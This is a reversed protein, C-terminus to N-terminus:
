ETAVRLRMFRSSHAGPPADDRVTVIWRDAFETVQVVAPHGPGDAFTWVTSWAGSLQHNAEVAYSLDGTFKRVTFTLTPVVTGQPGPLKGPAPAIALDPSGPDGLLAYELLNNLSDGDPDDTPADQGGPFTQRAAWIAYDEIVNFVFSDDVTNGVSDTARITIKTAGIPGTPTITLV